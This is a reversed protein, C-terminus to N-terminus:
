GFIENLLGALRVGGKLLQENLTDVHKFNYQYSLKQNPQKLEDHLVLSLNYSETLWDTVPASQWKARQDATTFNIVKTYETYSLQQYEILQSDWVTHINSPDNFWLVKIDNGGRDGEGSVHFPQHLDGVIHIVLRLYMLKQDQPLKKDKLQAVLFNLRNYANITTDKNFVAAMNANAVGKEVDLYHWANLYKFNSDSKIFDPWNSAIAISENGLIKKIERSAKSTLYSNAIEGVIRHGLMGWAMSQYPLYLFLIAAILTKFVFKKM